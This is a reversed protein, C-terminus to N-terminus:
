TGKEMAQKIAALPAFWRDERVASPQDRLSIVAREARRAKSRPRDSRRVENRVAGIERLARRIGAIFQKEGRASDSPTWPFFVKRSKGGFSLTACQHKSSKTVVAEAGPWEELERDLAARYNIASSM